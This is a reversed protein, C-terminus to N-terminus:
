FLKMLPLPYLICRIQLIMSLALEEGIHYQMAKRMIYIQKFNTSLTRKISQRNFPTFSLLFPQFCLPCCIFLVFLMELLM